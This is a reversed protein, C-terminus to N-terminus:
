NEIHAVNDYAGKLCVAIGLCFKQAVYVQTGASFVRENTLAAGLGADRAFQMLATTDNFKVIGGIVEKSMQDRVLWRFDPDDVPIEDPVPPTPPEPSGPAEPVEAFVYEALISHHGTTSGPVEIDPHRTHFGVVIDSECYHDDVRHIWIEMTDNQGVPVDGMPANPDTKDLQAMGATNNGTNHWAVVVNELRCGDEDVVNVFINHDGHNEEPTLLHLRVLKAYMDGPEVEATEVIVGWDPPIDNELELIPPEPEPDPNPEPEPPEPSPPSPPEVEGILRSTEEWEELCEFTEWGHSPGVTFMAAGVVFDDQCLQQDYKHMGGVFVEREIGTRWGVDPQGEVVAHTFGCETILLGWGRQAAWKMQTRYRLLRADLEWDWQYWTYEHLCIYGRDSPVTDFTLPFHEPDIKPEGPWGFNGTPLCFLGIKVRPNLEWIRRAFQAQFADFKALDEPTTNNDIAENYVEAVHIDNIVPPFRMALDIAHGEPNDSFPQSESYVRYVIKTDPAVYQIAQLDEVSLDMVKVMPPQLREIAELAQPSMVQIHPCLKSKMNESGKKDIMHQVFPLEGDLAFPGNHWTTHLGQDEFSDAQQASLLQVGILWQMWTFFNPDEEIEQQMLDTYVIQQQVTNRPYRGDNHSAVVFGGETAIIPVYPLLGAETLLGKHGRWSWFCTSDTELTAGPNKFQQRILNIHHEDVQWPLFVWKDGTNQRYDLSVEALKALYEEHTMPFGIQNIADYPYNLPHNLPYPHCGLWGPGEIFIDRREEETMYEIYPNVAQGQPNPYQWTTCSPTGPYGGLAKIKYAADVFVRWCLEVWDKPIKNDLHEWEGGCEPENQHSFYEVGKEILRGVTDEMRSNFPSDPTSFLRIVCEVNRAHFMDVISLGGYYPNPQLTSGGGDDILLVWSAWEATRNIFWTLDAHAHYQIPTWHVGPAPSGFGPYMDITMEPMAVREKPWEAYLHIQWLRGKAYKSIVQDGAVWPPRTKTGRTDELSMCYMYGSPELPSETDVIQAALTLAEETPPLRGMWRRAIDESSLGSEIQTAICGAVAARGETGLIGAEGEIISAYLEVTETTM